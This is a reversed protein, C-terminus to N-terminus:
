MSSEPLNGSVVGLTHNGWKAYGWFGILIDSVVIVILSLNFVGLPKRYDAPNKMENELAVIQFNLTIFLIVPTMTIMM